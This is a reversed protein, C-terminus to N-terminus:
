LTSYINYCKAEFFHSVDIVKKCLLWAWRRPSVEDNTDSGGCHSVALSQEMCSLRSAGGAHIHLSGLLHYSPDARSESSASNGLCHTRTDPSSHARSSYRGGPGRRSYFRWRILLWAMQRHKRVEVINLLSADNRGCPSCYSIGPSCGTSGGSPWIQM